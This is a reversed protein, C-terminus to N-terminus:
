IMGWFFMEPIIVGKIVTKQFSHEQILVTKETVLYIKYHQCKKRQTM